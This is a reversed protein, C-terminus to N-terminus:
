DPIDLLGGFRIRKVWEMDPYDRRLEEMLGDVGVLALDNPIQDVNEAYARSMVKVHGTLFTANFDVMDGMIGKIWCNLLVTLMVGLVVVLTPFLSRHKDRILGKLLFKIM